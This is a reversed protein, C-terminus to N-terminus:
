WALWYIASLVSAAITWLILKETFSLEDMANTEAIQKRITM